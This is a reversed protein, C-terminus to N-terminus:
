SNKEPLKRFAEKASVALYFGVKSALVSMLKQGQGGCQPCLAPEEAKSFSQM